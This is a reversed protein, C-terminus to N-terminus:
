TLTQNLGARRRRAILLGLAGFGILLSAMGGPEPAPAITAVLLNDIRNNGSASTAGNFTIRFVDNANNDLATISSLDFSQVAFASPPTYTSFPTFTAGGDTSYSFVDSNFGTSTRQTAFSVGIGTVGTTNVTFQIYGGNNGASAPPGTIATGGLLALASGAMSGPQANLTTGGFFAANSAPTPNATFGVLTLTGNGATPTFTSPAVSGSTQTGFDYYSVVTQQAQVMQTSLSLAAIVASQAVTKKFINQM